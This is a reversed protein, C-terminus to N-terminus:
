IVNKTSVGLSLSFSSRKDSVCLGLRTLFPYEVLGDRMRVSGVWESSGDRMRVSGDRTRTRWWGEKMSGDRTRVLGGGGVWKGGNKEM